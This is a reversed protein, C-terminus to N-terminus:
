PAVAHVFVKGCTWCHWTTRGRIHFDDTDRSGCSPSSPSAFLPETVEPDVHKPIAARDCLPCAVYNGVVHVGHHGCPAFGSKGSM